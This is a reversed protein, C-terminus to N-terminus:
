KAIVTAVSSPTSGARNYAQVRYRYTVNPTRGTDTFTTINIYRSGVVQFNTCSAGQCREILYGAENHAKDLWSLGVKGGTFATAKLNGPALPKIITVVSVPYAYSSNGAKNYARARYRYATHPTLGTDTFFTINAFRTMIQQFNQCGDGQCRELKFGSENNANDHWEIRVSTESVATATMATPPLPLALSAFVEITVGAINASAKGRSDTVRLTARYIGENYTHSIMPSAQTVPASGDGFDFTYSAITDAPADTDPDHSASANFNVTLPEKGQRPSASLEAIPATNPRCFANGVLTYNGSGAADDNILVAVGVQQTAANANSLTEGTKLEPFARGASNGTATMNTKTPTSIVFLISGAPTWSGADLTGDTVLLDLGGTGAGPMVHGYRFVPQGGNTAVEDSETTMTVFWTTSAGWSPPSGPPNVRTFYITWRSEPPPVPNLNGVQMTLFLKNKTLAPDYIEAASVKHIDRQPAATTNEGTADTFLTIGPLVCPTQTPPAVGIPFEDCNPGEGESNIATVKYFYATNPLASTDNYTTKDPPVTALPAGYTGGAGVKRYINYGTIPAGGNDPALWNIHVIGSDDKFVNTVDPAAPPNPETPPDFAAFLRKGGSQRAITAKAARSDDGTPSTCGLCGDAYAILVRGEHDVEMDNFDLLNRDAGCSLGGTCISGRQVPDNEPTVRVTTWTQGGNFTHASYIHWVGKFIGTAEYNGGTDTALFMVAARDADGGVAAPFVTNRIGFPAGVDIPTSWTVGRDSSTAVMARGDGNAFAFYIKGAADIGVSPDTDGPTSGPVLRLKFTTAEDESVVVGQMSGQNSSCGKNPVYVTGVQGNAQTQPTDPTVKIHGHLGGCQTLNYMPVAPGFTQGGDRSIAMQAIAADQSAYYVANDYIGTGDPPGPVFPGGGVTQHDVGSNIGCGQSPIWDGPAQGNTGGDNDSYVMNSCKASLQSTFTRGTIFDTFLIPDLTATSTTPFSVDEWLPDAPSACDDWTVRLTELGAIYMTRGDAHGTIPKGVGLTPEGAENGMGAPAAFNHFRPTGPGPPPPAVVTPKKVLAITTTTTSGAVAFPVIRVTYTGPKADVIMVEPNSSSASDKVQTNGQYLYIDYDEASNDWFTRVEINHTNEFSAPVSVTLTFDDCVQQTTCVPEDAAQASPNSVVFPGSTYTIDPNAVSLTGSSPDAASGGM